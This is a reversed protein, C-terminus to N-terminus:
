LMAVSLPFAVVVLTLCVRNAVELPLALHLAGVVAYYGLYPVYRFRSTFTQALLSGADHLHRLVELVYLHQPLDVMPLDRAVWLPAVCALSAIIWAAPPVSVDTAPAPSATPPLQPRRKM